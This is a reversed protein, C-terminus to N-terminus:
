DTITLPLMFHFTSGKEPLSEAWLKGQHRQIIERSIYLGIGLGHFRLENSDIRYYREFIKELNNETIGIGSDKVSVTIQGNEVVTNIYVEDSYPSYKVANSLLNIVVQQLRDKDGFLRLPAVLSTRIFRHRPTICQMSEITESLLEDFNFDTFNFDLKGNQIKSVDLLESILDRLRDVSLIAKKTYLNQKEDNKDLSMELLQLYAKATTLPTKMEHSAISIFEDKKEEKTKQDHIDTATSIWQIINGSNDKIPTINSIHWRYMGDSKRKLRIEKCFDEGKERCHLWHAINEASEDPHLIGNWGNITAEEVSLGSYEFFFKNFFINTGNSSSTSTIQPLSELIKKLNDTSKKRLIVQGTVEYGFILVGNIEKEYNYMPQFSFNLYTPEPEKGEDRALYILMETVVLPKGTKFVEDLKEIFGQGKLEPIADIIKKGLLERKGYLKQYELNVMEYIHEPGKLTCIFAPANICLNEVMEAMQELKRQSAAQGTIDVLTNVSGAIKGNTDYIARPYPIVNRRTGDTKEIVIPSNSISGDKLILGLPCEDFPLPASDPKFIKWFKSAQDKGKEPERGWLEVAAANYLQIYGEENCTYFASPFGYILDRYNSKREQLKNRSIVQETVDYIFVLIGEITTDDDSLFVQFDMNLFVLQKKQHNTIYLPMEKGSFPEGTNYVKDLTEFFFLSDVESLAEKLKKGVLHKNGMLEEFPANALEIIHSPGKLICLMAPAMMFVHYLQQKRFSNISTPNNPLSSPDNLIQFSESM